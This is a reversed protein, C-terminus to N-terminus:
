YDGNAVPLHSAKRSIKYFTRFQKIIESNSIPGDQYDSTMGSHKKRFSRRLSNNFSKHDSISKKSWLFYTYIQEDTYNDICSILTLAQNTADQLEHATLVRTPQYIDKKFIKVSFAILIRKILGDLDIMAQNDVVSAREKNPKSQRISDICNCLDVKDNELSAYSFSTCFFLINLTLSRLILYKIM